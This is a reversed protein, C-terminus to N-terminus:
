VTTSTIIIFVCVYSTKLKFRKYDETNVIVTSILNFNLLGHSMIVVFGTSVLPVEPM